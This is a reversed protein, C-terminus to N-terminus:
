FVYAIDRITVTAPKDSDVRWADRVTTIDRLVSAKSVVGTLNAARLAARAATDCRKKSVSKHSLEIVDVIVKNGVKTIRTRMESGSDWTSDLSVLNADRDIYQGM